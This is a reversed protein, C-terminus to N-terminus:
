SMTKGVFKLAEALTSFAALLTRQYGHGLPEAYVAFGGQPAAHITVTHPKDSHFMM